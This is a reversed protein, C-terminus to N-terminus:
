MFKPSITHYISPLHILSSSVAYPTHLPQSHVLLSIQNPVDYNFKGFSVVALTVTDGCSLLGWCPRVITLLENLSQQNVCILDNQLVTSCTGAERKQEALFDISRDLSANCLSCIM